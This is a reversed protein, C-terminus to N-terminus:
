RYWELAFRALSLPERTEPQEVRAFYPVRIQYNIPAQHCSPTVRSLRSRDSRELYKVCEFKKFIPVPYIMLLHAARDTKRYHQRHLPLMCQWGLNILDRLGSTLREHRFPSVIARLRFPGWSFDLRGAAQCANWIMISRRTISMYSSSPAAPTVSPAWDREPQGYRKNVELRRFSILKMPRCTYEQDPAARHRGISDTTTTPLSAGSSATTRDGNRGREGTGGPLACVKHQRLDASLTPVLDLERHVTRSCM